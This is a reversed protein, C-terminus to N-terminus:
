ACCPAPEPALRGRLTAGATRAASIRREWRRRRLAAIARHRDAQTRREEHLLQAEMLLMGDRM